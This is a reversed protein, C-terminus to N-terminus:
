WVYISHAQDMEYMESMVCKWIRSRLMIMETKHKTTKSWTVQEINMVTESATLKV